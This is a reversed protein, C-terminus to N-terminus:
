TGMNERRGMLPIGPLYRTFGDKSLDVVRGSFYGVVEADAKPGM